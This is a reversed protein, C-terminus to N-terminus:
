TTLFDISMVKFICLLPFPADSIILFYSISMSEKSNRKESNVSSLSIRLSTTLFGKVGAFAFALSPIGELFM